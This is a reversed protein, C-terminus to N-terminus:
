SASWPSPRPTSTQPAMLVGGGGRGRAAGRRRPGAAGSPGRRAAARRMRETYGICDLVIWSSGGEALARAAAAVEEDAQEPVRVPEGRRGTGHGAAGPVM